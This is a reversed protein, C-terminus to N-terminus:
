PLRGNLGFKEESKLNSMDPPTQGQDILSPQDGEVTRFGRAPVDHFATQLVLPRVGPELPHRTAGTRPPCEFVM